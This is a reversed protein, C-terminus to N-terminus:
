TCTWAIGAQLSGTARDLFRAEVPSAHNLHYVADGGSIFGPISAWCFPHWGYWNLANETQPLQQLLVHFISVVSIPHSWGFPRIGSSSPRKQWGRPKRL